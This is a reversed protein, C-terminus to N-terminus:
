VMFVYRLNDGDSVPTVAGPPPSQVNVSPRRRETKSTQKREASKKREGKQTDKAGAKDKGAKGKTPTTHDDKGKDPTVSKEEEPETGSTDPVGVNRFLLCINCM